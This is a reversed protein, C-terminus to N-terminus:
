CGKDKFQNNSQQLKKPKKQMKNLPEMFLHSNSKIKNNHWGEASCNFSQMLFRQKLPTTLNSIQHSDRTQTFFFFFIQLSISLTFSCHSPETGACDSLFVSAQVQQIYCKTVVFPFLVTLNLSLSVNMHEYHSSLYLFYLFYCTRESVDPVATVCELGTPPLSAFCRGFYPLMSRWRGTDKLHREVM